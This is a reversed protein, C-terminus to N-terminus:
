ECSVKTYAITYESEYTKKTQENYFTAKNSEPYDFYVALDGHSSLLLICNNDPKPINVSYACGQITLIFLLLILKKM